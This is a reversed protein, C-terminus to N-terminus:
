RWHGRVFVYNNETKQWGSPVWTRAGAPPIEWHGSLWEYPAAPNGTYSWHGELWIAERAPRVPTLHRPKFAPVPPPESTMYRRDVKSLDVAPPEAVAGVVRNNLAQSRDTRASSACGAGLAIAFLSTLVSVTRTM